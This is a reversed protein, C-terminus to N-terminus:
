ITQDDKKVLVNYVCLTYTSYNRVSEEIELITYPESDNIQVDGFVHWGKYPLKSAYYNVDFNIDYRSHIHKKDADIDFFNLECLIEM